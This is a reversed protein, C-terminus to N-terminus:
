RKVFSCPILSEAFFMSLFACPSNQVILCFTEKPQKKKEQDSEIFTIEYLYLTSSLKLALVAGIGGKRLGICTSEKSYESGFCNM